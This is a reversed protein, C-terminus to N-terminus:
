PAVWPTVEFRLPGSKVKRGRWKTLYICHDGAPLWQLVDLNVKGSKRKYIRKSFGTSSRENRDKWLIKEGVGYSCKSVVVYGGRGKQTFDVVIPGGGSSFVSKQLSVCYEGECQKHVEGLHRVRSADEKKGDESSGMMGSIKNQQSSGEASGENIVDKRSMAALEDAEEKSWTAQIPDGGGLRRGLGAVASHPAFSVMGQLVVLCVLSLSGAVVAFRRALVLNRSGTRWGRLPKSDQSDEM